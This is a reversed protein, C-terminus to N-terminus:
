QSEENLLARIEDDSLGDLDDLMSALEDSDATQILQEDVVKALAAVTFTGSFLINMPIEVHFTEHVKFLIQTAMISHGGLAFFDQDVGVREVGLADAWIKSL